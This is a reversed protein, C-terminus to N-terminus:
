RCNLFLFNSQSLHRKTHSFFSLMKSMMLMTQKEKENATKQKSNKTEQKAKNRIKNQAAKSKGKRSSGSDIGGGLSQLMM